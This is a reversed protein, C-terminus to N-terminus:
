RVLHHRMEILGSLLDIMGGHVCTKGGQDADIAFMDNCDLPDSIHLIRMSHLLSDRDAITALTTKASWANNHYAM